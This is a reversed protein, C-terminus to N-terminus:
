KKVLRVPIINGVADKIADTAPLITINVTDTATGGADTAELTLTVTRQVLSAPAVFTPNLITTSSLVVGTPINTWAYSTGTGSGSLQVTTWPEVVQDAGANVSPLTSIVEADDATLNDVTQVFSGTGGSGSVFHHLAPSGAVQLNADADELDVHWSTPEANSALWVKYRIRTPASGTVLVRQKLLTGAAYGSLASTVTTGITEEVRSGSSDTVRRIRANVNGADNIVSEGRYSRNGNIYRGQIGLFYGSGAPLRDISITATMDWILSAAPSAITNKAAGAVSSITGVTGNTDWDAANASPLLTYTHGSDSTGWGDAVTRTFTDNLIRTM